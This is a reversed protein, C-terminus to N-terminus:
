KFREIDYKEVLVRRPQEQNSWLNRLQRQTDQAEQTYDIEVLPLAESTFAVFIGNNGELAPGIVGPEQGCIAGIVDPEKGIKDVNLGGISFYSSDLDKGLSNAIDQISNARALAEDVQNSIIAKKANKIAGRLCQDAVREYNMYGEELVDTLRVLVLGKDGNPLVSWHGEKRGSEYAWSIVERNNGLGPVLEEFRGLNTAPQLSYNREIALARYDEASSMDYKLKDAITEIADMTPKSPVINRDIKGVKYALVSGKHDTIEVIHLGFETEVLGLKGEKHLFCFDRLNKRDLDSGRKLYGLSGGKKNAEIDSSFEERVRDFEIRNSDLYNFLSDALTYADNPSRSISADAGEAGVYSILIHRAEVSEPLSKKDVLKIISFASDLDIPGMQYGIDQNLVLTDLGQLESEVVYQLDYSNDSLQKIFLSDDEVNLWELALEALDAKAYDRDDQSPIYPFDIFEINRGEEQPFNERNEAYYARADSDSVDIDSENVDSYPIYVFQAPYQRSRRESHIKELAEPMFLAKEVASIFKIYKSQLKQEKKILIWENYQAAIQANQRDEREEKKLEGFSKMQAKFDNYANMDFQGNGNSFSQMILPHQPLVFDLEKNSLALSSNELEQTLINDLVFRDWADNRFQFSGNYSRYTRITDQFDTATIEQGNITGIITPDSGGKFAKIADGLVFAMLSVFVIVIVLGSRKRIRDITAM